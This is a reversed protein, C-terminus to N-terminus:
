RSSLKNRGHVLSKNESLKNCGLLLSRARNCGCRGCSSRIDTIIMLGQKARLRGSFTEKIPLGEQYYTRGVAYKARDSHKQGGSRRRCLTGFVDAGGAREAAEPLLQCEGGLTFFPMPQKEAAANGNDAHYEGKGEM